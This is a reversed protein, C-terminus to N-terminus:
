IRIGDLGAEVMLQRDYRPIKFKRDMWQDIVDHMEDMGGYIETPDLGKLEQRLKAVIQSHNRIATMIIPKTAINLMVM